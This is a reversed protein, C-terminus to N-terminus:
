VAGGPLKVRVQVLQRLACPGAMRIYLGRQSVDETLYSEWQGRRLELELKIPIRHNRRREKM